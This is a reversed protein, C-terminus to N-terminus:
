KRVPEYRIPTPIILDVEDDENADEDEDCLSLLIFSLSTSRVEDEQQPPPPPGDIVMAGFFFYDGPHWGWISKKKNQIYIITNMYICLALVLLSDALIQKM